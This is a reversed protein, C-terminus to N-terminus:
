KTFAKWRILTKLPIEGLAFLEQSGLLIYDPPLNGSTAVPRPLFYHPTPFRDGARSIFPPLIGPDLEAM